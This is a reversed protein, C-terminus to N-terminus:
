FFLYKVCFIVNRDVKNFTFTYLFLNWTLYAFFQINYKVLIM